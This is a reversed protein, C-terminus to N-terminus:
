FAEECRRPAAHAAAPLLPAVLAVVHFVLKLTPTGVQCRPPRYHASQWGHQRHALSPRYDEREASFDVYVEAAISAFSADTDPHGHAM